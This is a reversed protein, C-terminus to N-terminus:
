HPLGAALAGRKNMAKTRSFAAKGPLISISKAKQPPPPRPPLPLDDLVSKKQRPFRWSHRCLFIKFTCLKNDLFKSTM